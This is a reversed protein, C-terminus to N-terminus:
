VTAFTILWISASLAGIALVAASVGLGLLIRRTRLKSNAEELTHVTESLRKTYGSVPVTALLSDTGCYNCTAALANPEVVLPAGCSRCEAPGNPRSPPRAGLADRFRVLTAAVASTWTWLAAGPLLAPLVLLAAIAAVPLPPSFVLSGALAAVPPLLLISPAAVWKTWKPVDTSLREFVPEAARRVEAERVRAQPARLYDPPVPVRTGCYECQVTESLALPVPAGCGSCSLIKLRVETTKSM